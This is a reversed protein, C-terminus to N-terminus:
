WLCYMLAFPCMGSVMWRTLVMKEVHMKFALMRYREDCTLVHLTRICQQTHAQSQLLALTATLIIHPHWTYGDVDLAQPLALPLLAAIIDICRVRVHVDVDDHIHQLFLTFHTESCLLMRHTCEACTAINHCLTITSIDWALVGDHLLTLIPTVSHMATILPIHAMNHSLTLVHQLARSQIAPEHKYALFQCLTHWMTIPTHTQHQMSMHMISAHTNNSNDDTMSTTKRRMPAMVRVDDHVDHRMWETWSRAMVADLTDVHCTIVHLMDHAAQISLTRHSTCTLHCLAPAIHTIIHPTSLLHQTHVLTHLIRATVIRIEIRTHQACTMITHMYDDCSVLQTRWADDCVCRAICLLAMYLM